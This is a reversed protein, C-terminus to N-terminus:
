TCRPPATSSSPVLVLELLTPVDVDLALVLVVVDAADTEFEDPHSTEVVERHVELPM